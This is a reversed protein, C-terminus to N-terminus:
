PRLLWKQEARPGDWSAWEPTEFDTVVDLQVKLGEFCDAYLEYQEQVTRVEGFDDNKVFVIREVGTSDNLCRLKLLKACEMITTTCRLSNTTDKLVIDILNPLLYSRCASTETAPEDVPSCLVRILETRSEACTPAIVLRSVGPMAQLLRSWTTTDAGSPTTPCLTVETINHEAFFAAAAEVCSPEVPDGSSSRLTFSTSPGAGAIRIGDYFLGVQVKGTDRLSAYGSIQTMPLTSAGVTLRLSNPSPVIQALITSASVPHIGHIHVTTLRPFHISRRESSASEARPGGEFLSLEELNPSCALFDLFETCTLAQACNKLRLVTLGMFKNGRWSDVCHLTLRRLSPTAGCFLVPLTMREHSDSWLFLSELVPAPERSFHELFSADFAFGYAHFSRFRASHAPLTDVAWPKVEDPIYTWLFVDLSAGCSRQLCLRALSQHSNPCRYRDGFNVITWISPSLSTIARWYRCVGTLRSPHWRSSMGLDHRGDSDFVLPSRFVGPESTTAPM